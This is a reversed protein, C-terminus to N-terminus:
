AEEHEKAAEEVDEAKPREPLIKELTEILTWGCAYGCAKDISILHEVMGFAAHAIEAAVDKANGKMTVKTKGKKAVLKIM